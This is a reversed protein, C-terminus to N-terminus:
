RSYLLVLIPVRLFRNFLDKMGKAKGETLLGLLFGVQLTRLSLHVAPNSGIAASTDLWHVCLNYRQHLVSIIVYLAMKTEWVLIGLQARNACVVLLPWLLFIRSPNSSYDIHM